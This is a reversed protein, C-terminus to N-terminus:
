RSTSPPGLTFREVASALWALKTTRESPTALDVSIGTWYPKDGPARLKCDVGLVTSLSQAAAALLPRGADEPAVLWLGGLAIPSPMKSPLRSRMVRDRAEFRGYLSHEEEGPKVELEHPVHMEDQRYWDVYENGFTFDPPEPILVALKATGGSVHRVDVQVGEYDVSVKFSVVAAGIAVTRATMARRDLGGAGATGTPPPLTPTLVAGDPLPAAKGGLDSASGRPVGPLFRPLIAASWTPDSTTAAFHTWAADSRGQALALLALRARREANSTPASALSEGAIV